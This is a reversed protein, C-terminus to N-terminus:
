GLETQSLFVATILAKITEPALSQAGDLVSHYQHSVLKVLGDPVLDPLTRYCEDMIVYEETSSDSRLLATDLYERHERQLLEFVSSLSCDNLETM